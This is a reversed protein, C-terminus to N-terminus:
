VVLFTSGLSPFYGPSLKSLNHLVLVMLKSEKIFHHSFGATAATNTIIRNTKFGKNFYINNVGYEDNRGM